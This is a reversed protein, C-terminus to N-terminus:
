NLGTSGFGNTNRSTDDLSTVEEVDIHLVPCIVLQAIKSGIEVEYDKDSLNTIIVKYEGRYGADITGIGNVLSIGHNLALGSKARIQAEYGDPLNIAIGTNVLKIEGPKITLKSTSYLDMGADNYHAYKPIIANEDLKMIQIKM